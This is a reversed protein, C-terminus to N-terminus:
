APPPTAPRDRRRRLRLGVAIATVLLLVTAGAILKADDSVVTVTSTDRVENGDPDVVVAEVVLEGIAISPTELRLVRPSGSFVVVPGSDLRATGGLSSTTAASATVLAVGSAAAITVTASRADIATRVAVAPRGAVFIAATEDTLDEGSAVIAAAPLTAPWDVHVRAAAAPGITVTPADGGPWALAVGITPAGDPGPSVARLALDVTVERGSTNAVLVELPETPDIAAITPLMTVADSPADVPADVIEPPRAAASTPVATAWVVLLAILLSRARVVVGSRDLPGTARAPVPDPRRSM